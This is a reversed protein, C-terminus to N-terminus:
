EMIVSKETSPTTTLPEVKSIGLFKIFRLNNYKKKIKIAIDKERVRINQSVQM